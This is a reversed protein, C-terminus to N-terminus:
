KREKSLAPSPIQGLMNRCMEKYRNVKDSPKKPKLAIVEKALARAKVQDNTKLYMKLLLM